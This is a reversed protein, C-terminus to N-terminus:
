IRGEDLWNSPRLKSIQSEWDDLEREMGQKQAQEFFICEKKRRFYNIEYTTFMDPTLSEKKFIATKPRTCLVEDMEAFPCWQCLTPCFPVKKMKENRPLNLIRNALIAKKEFEDRWSLNEWRTFLGTEITYCHGTPWVALCNACETKQQEKWECLFCSASIHLSIKYAKDETYGENILIRRLAEHKSTAPENALITWHKEHLSWAEDETMNKVNIM